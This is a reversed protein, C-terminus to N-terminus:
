GRGVHYAVLRAGAEALDPWDGHYEFLAVASTPYGSMMDSAVAPDGHGDDLLSALYAITPNHGIVILATTDAPLERLLDLATEPSAGYLAESLHPELDFDGGVAVSRWTGVTRHAASVLAHDPVFGRRALWTGTDESDLRGREALEREFDTRGAQEAKGHRMVAIRRPASTDDASGEDHV